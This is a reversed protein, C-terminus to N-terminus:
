KRRRDGQGEGGAALTGGVVVGQRVVAGGHGGLGPVRQQGCARQRELRRREVADAVGVVLRRDLLPHALVQGLDARDRVVGLRRGEGVGDLRHLPGARQQ